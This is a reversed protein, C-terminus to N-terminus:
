YSMYEKELPLTPVDPGWDGLRFEPRTSLWGIEGYTTVPVPKITREDGYRLNRFKKEIETMPKTKSVEAM